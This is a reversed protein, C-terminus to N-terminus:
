RTMEHRAVRQSLGPPITIVAAVSLDRYMRRARAPSTVYVNLVGSSIISRTLARGAPGHDMNVVAAPERSTAQAGMIVAAGCSAALLVSGLIQVPRRRWLALDRRCIAWVAAAFRM